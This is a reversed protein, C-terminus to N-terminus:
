TTLLLRLHQNWQGFSIGVHMTWSSIGEGRYAPQCSALCAGLLELWSGQAGAVHALHGPRDTPPPFQPVVSQSCGLDSNEQSRFDHLEM